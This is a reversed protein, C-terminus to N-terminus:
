PDFPKIEAIRTVSIRLHIKDNTKSFFTKPMSTLLQRRPSSTPKFANEFFNGFAFVIITSRSLKSFNKSVEGTITNKIWAEWDGHIRIDM